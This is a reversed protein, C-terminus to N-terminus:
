EINAKFRGLHKGYPLMQPLPKFYVGLLYAAYDAVSALAQTDRLLGEGQGRPRPQPEDDFEFLAFFGALESMRVTRCVRPIVSVRVGGDAPSFSIM